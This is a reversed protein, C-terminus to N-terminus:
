SLFAADKEEQLAVGVMGRLGPDWVDFRLGFTRVDSPCLEDPVRLGPSRRLRARSKLSRDFLPNAPPHAQTPCTHAWASTSLRQNRIWDRMPPTDLRGRHQGGGVNDPLLVSVPWTEDGRTPIQQGAPQALDRRRAGPRARVKQGPLVGIPGCTFEIPEGVASESGTASVCLSTTQEGTSAFGSRLVM